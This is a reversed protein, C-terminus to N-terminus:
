RPRAAKKSITHVNATQLLKRKRFSTAHFPRTRCASGDEEEENKTNEDRSSIEDCQKILSVTGKSNKIKEYLEEHQRKKIELDSIQSLLWTWRAGISARDHSYIWAARKMSFFM